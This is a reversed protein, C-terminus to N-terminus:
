GTWSGKAQQEITSDQTRINSSNEMVSYTYKIGEHVVRTKSLCFHNQEFYLTILQGKGLMM